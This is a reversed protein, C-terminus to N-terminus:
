AATSTSESTRTTRHSVFGIGDFGPAARLASEFKAWSSPDTTSARERPAGGVVRYPVKTPKGDRHELQWVVWQPRERLEAPIAATNM